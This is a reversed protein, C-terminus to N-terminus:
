CKFTVTARDEKTHPTMKDMKFNGGIKSCSARAGELADESDYGQIWYLNNGVDQVKTYQYAALRGSSNEGPADCGALLGFVVIGVVFANRM